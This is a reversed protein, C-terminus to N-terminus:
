ISSGMVVPPLRLGICLAYLLNDFLHHTLEKAAFHFNYATPTGISTYMAPLLKKMRINISVKHVVFKQNM